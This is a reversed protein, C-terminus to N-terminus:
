LGITQTLWLRIQTMVHDGGCQKFMTPFLNTRLSDVCKYVFESPVVDNSTGHLLLIRQSEARIYTGFANNMNTQLSTLGPLWGNIGIVIQPNIIQNEIQVQGFACSSAFYLAAAAGLGVGGVGKIFKLHSMTLAKRIAPTSWICYRKKWGPFYRSTQSCDSLDM